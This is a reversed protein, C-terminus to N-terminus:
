DKRYYSAEFGDATLPLDGMWSAKQVMLENFHDISGFDNPVDAVCEDHVHMVLPYGAVDLNLMAHALCDRAYAQVMNEVLKGGYTTQEEWKRSTQNVGGYHITETTRGAQLWYRIHNPLAELATDQEQKTLRNWMKAADKKAVRRPYLKWFVEFPTAPTAEPFPHFVKQAQM